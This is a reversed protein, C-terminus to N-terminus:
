FSCGSREGTATTTPSPGRERIWTWWQRTSGSPAWSRGSTRQAIGPDRRVRHNPGPGQLTHAGLHGSPFCVLDGSTLIRGGAPERLMPAGWVVYLWEEVGRHYHYPWIPSGADARYVGAGGVFSRRCRRRTASPLVSRSAM